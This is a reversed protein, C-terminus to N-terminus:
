ILDAFSYEINESIFVYLRNVTRRGFGKIGFMEQTDAKLIERWTVDPGFHGLLPKIEFGPDAPCDAVRDDLGINFLSTTAM